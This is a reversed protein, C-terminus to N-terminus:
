GASNLGFITDNDGYFYNITKYFDLSNKCQWKSMIKRKLYSINKETCQFYCAIKKNSIGNYVLYCYRREKATLFLADNSGPRNAGADSFVVESLLSSFAFLSINSPVLRIHEMGAFIHIVDKLHAPVIAISQKKRTKYSADIHMLEILTVRRVSFLGKKGTFNRTLENLGLMLMENNGLIFIENKM